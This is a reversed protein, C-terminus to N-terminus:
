KGRKSINWFSIKERIEFGLKAYLSIAHLNSEAVHMNPVKKRSFINNVTHATLQSAYGKGTYEPHTLVQRWM